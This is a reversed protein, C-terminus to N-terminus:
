KNPVYVVELKIRDPDEFYVAYYGDKYEPFVKPTDYLTPISRKVLFDNLFEDVAEKSEVAFAIHNIGTNKRHFNNQKYEKETEIIWFDTTDNTVGIHEPSEDIIRYELFNFLEKYFPYQNQPM